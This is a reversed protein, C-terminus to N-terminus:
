FILLEEVAEKRKEAKSNLTRKLSFEKITWDKYLERIRETGSNSLYVHVGKDKLRQALDRLKVQDEFNFGDETYTTFSSTESIPDYPPDFYVLDGPQALAEVDSFDRSSVTASRLVESCLELNGNEGFNKKLTRGVPINMLGDRNVRFMANFCTINLYLFRAAVEAPELDETITFVKKYKRETVKERDINRVMYYFEKSHKKNMENLLTQVEEWNEKIQNYTIVLEQNKDFLNYEKTDGHKNVLHFFLSGGGVFPEWYNNFREPLFPAYQDLLRRKGGVWQVFPAAEGVLKREKKLERSFGYDEIVKRLSYQTDM